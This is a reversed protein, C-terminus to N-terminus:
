SSVFWQNGRLLAHPTRPRPTPQGAMIWAQHIQSSIRSRVEPLQQKLKTSTVLHDDEMPFEVHAVFFGKSSEM